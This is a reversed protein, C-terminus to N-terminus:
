RSRNFLLAGAARASGEDCVPMAALRPCSIKLTELIINEPIRTRAVCVAGDAGWGAEFSYAPDDGTDPTQIGVSDWVDISTGDRTFSRGDGCYDARVLRTCANYYDRMPRRDAAMKWPQYGFRV